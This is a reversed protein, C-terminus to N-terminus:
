LIKAIIRLINLVKMLFNWYDLQLGEFEKWWIVKRM